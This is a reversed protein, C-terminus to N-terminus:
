LNTNKNAPISVVSFSDWLAQNCSVNHYWEVIKTQYYRDQTREALLGSENENMLSYSGLEERYIVYAFQVGDQEIDVRKWQGIQMSSIAGSLSEHYADADEKTLFVGNDSAFIPYESYETILGAADGGATGKQVLEDARAHKQLIEGESLVRDSDVSDRNLYIVAVRVRMYAEHFYANLATVYDYESVTLNSVIQQKVATKKQNTLYISALQDEGVGLIDLLANWEDMDDEYYKKVNEIQKLAKEKGGETYDLGWAAFLQKCVLLETLYQKVMNKFYEAHSVGDPRLSDWFTQSDNGKANQAALYQTKLNSIWYRVEVTTMAEDGYTLVPAGMDVTLSCATFLCALVLLMACLSLIRKKQQTM